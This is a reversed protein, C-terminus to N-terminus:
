YASEQEEVLAAVREKLWDKNFIAGSNVIEQTLRDLEKRIKERPLYGQDMRIQAAKRTLKFLNYYGMRRQDAMLQNRYLYQRFSDTLACLAEYEGLDYYTRLLLAKAGLNYRLDSYEVRTLLELVKGYQRTAYYYSALNFRYANEQSDPHLYRRYNEIFQRVWQMEGLRIGTTVINKYHWESLTENDFILRKELQSQYLHFIEKLFSSNGLNIQAICYNQFYNYIQKLEPVSFGKEEEQLTRLAKFYYDTDKETVMRYIRAYVQIAPDASYEAYHQEVLHLLDDQASPRYEVKLIQSRVRMECADKLREALFFRDLFHQKRELSLDKQRRERQDYYLDAERALLFRQYYYASDRIAGSELEQQTQQLLKEYYKHQKRERLQRLLMLRRETENDAFGEQALFQEALRTAYSFIVALRSQDHPQGPFLAQFITERECTRADFRPYLESLCRVLARVQEHKNFYPSEVFERFRTM